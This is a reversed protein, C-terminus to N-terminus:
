LIVTNVTTVNLITSSTKYSIKNNVLFNIINKNYVFTTSNICCLTLITIIKNNPTTLHKVYVNLYRQVNLVTITHKQTTNLM